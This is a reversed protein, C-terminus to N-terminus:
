QCVMAVCVYNKSKVELLMSLLMIDIIYTYM